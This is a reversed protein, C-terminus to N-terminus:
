DMALYLDFTVDNGAGVGEIFKFVISNWPNGDFDGVCMYWGSAVALATIPVDAAGARYALIPKPTVAGIRSYTATSDWHNVGHYVGPAATATIQPAGATVTTQLYYCAIGKGRDSPLTLYLYETAGGAVVVQGHYVMSYKSIGMRVERITLWICM